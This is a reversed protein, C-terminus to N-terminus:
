YFADVRQSALFKNAKQISSEAIVDALWRVEIWLKIM